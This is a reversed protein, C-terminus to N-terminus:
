LLNKHKDKLKKFYHKPYNQNLHHGTITNSEPIILNLMMNLTNRNTPM